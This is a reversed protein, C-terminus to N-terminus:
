SYITWDIDAPVFVWYGEGAVLTYNDPARQLYYPATRDDFTEVTVGALGITAKLDAVTYSANLSPYGVM